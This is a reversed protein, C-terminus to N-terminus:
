KITGKPKARLYAAGRFYFLFISKRKTNRETQVIKANSYTDCTVFFLLAHYYNSGTQDMDSLSSDIAANANDIASTSKDSATKLKKNSKLKTNAKIISEIMDQYGALNDDLTQLSSVFSSSSLDSSLQSDSSDVASLLKESIAKIYTENISTKLTSVATDTIKPAVANKKENEYYTFSPNVFNDTLANYMNSSFDEDIVVAAYYTGSKVGDIADNESAPFVWGISTQSKLKDAVTQGMNVTSGNEDTYGKDLNVVAININGTNAYPDWNAFINFWAYLAPLICLGVALVITLISKKIGILDNKFIKLITKM